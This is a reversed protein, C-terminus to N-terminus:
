VHDRMEKDTHTKFTTNAKSIAVAFYFTLFDQM